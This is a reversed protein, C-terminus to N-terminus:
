EEKEEFIGTHTEQSCMFLPNEVTMVRTENDILTRLPKPLAFMRTHSVADYFKMELGRAALTEDAGAGSLDISVDNVALNFGWESTFSPVCMTYGYVKPFVQKLTHHIPSFVHHADRVSACGSQTVFIGGPALKKSL